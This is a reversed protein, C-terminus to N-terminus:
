NMSGYDRHWNAVPAGQPRGMKINTVIRSTSNVEHRECQFFDFPYTKGFSLGNLDDLNVIANASPHIGGLDIIMKRDVFVWVDDDGTFEFKLGSQYLFSMHMESCFSFNHARGAPDHGRWDLPFYEPENKWSTLPDGSDFNGQRSYVYTFPGQTQDLNFQLSDKIKANQYTNGFPNFKTKRCDSSNSYVYDFQDLTWDKFWKNV